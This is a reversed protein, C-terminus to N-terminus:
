PSSWPPSCPRGSCRTRCRPRTTAPGVFRRDDPATIRYSFLSQYLANILPYATVLLMVIVAPASLLLGLRREARGRDSIEAQRPAAPRKLTTDASTM